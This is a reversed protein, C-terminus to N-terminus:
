NKLASAQSFVWSPSIDEYWHDGVWALEGKGMAVAAEWWERSGENREEQCVRDGERQFAEAM